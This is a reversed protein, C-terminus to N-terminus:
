TDTKAAKENVESHRKENAQDLYELWKQMLSHSTQWDSDDTATGLSARMRASFPGIITGRLPLKLDAAAEEEKKTVPVDFLKLADTIREKLVIRRGRGVRDRFEERLWDNLVPGGSLSVGYDSDRTVIVIGSSADQACRVIWEWNISDGMSTDDDKRPPYGLKFRKEALTRIEQRADKDRSLRFPGPSRFIRQVTQYVPDTRSPERIVKELHQHIRKSLTSVRDRHKELSRSPRMEALIPPLALSGWDPTRFTKSTELLARQRNKKFEM